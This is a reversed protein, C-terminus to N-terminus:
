DKFYCLLLLPSCLNSSEGFECTDTGRLNGSRGGQQAACSAPGDRWHRRQQGAVRKPNTNQWHSREELFLMRGIYVRGM